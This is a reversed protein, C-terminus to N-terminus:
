GRVKEVLVGARFTCVPRVYDNSCCDDLCITKDTDVFLILTNNTSDPTLLWWSKECPEIYKRYLRYEDLTLLSVKDFSSGYETTGDLAMLNRKIPVIADENRFYDKIELELTQQLNDRLVSQLWNNSNLDFETSVGVFNKTIAFCGNSDEFYDLLIWELDATKLYSSFSM